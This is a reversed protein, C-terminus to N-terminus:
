ATCPMFSIGPRWPPGTAYLSHDGVMRLIVSDSSRPTTFGLATISARIEGPTFTPMSMAFSHCAISKTTSTLSCMETSHSATPGSARAITQGFGFGSFRAETQFGMEWSKEALKTNVANDVLLYTWDVHGGQSASDRRQWWEVTWDHNGLGLRTGQVNMRRAVFKSPNRPCALGSGFQGGPVIQGSGLELDFGNGSSDRATKSGTPDDFLWIAVTSADSNPLAGLFLAAMLFYRIYHSGIVAGICKPAYQHLHSIPM